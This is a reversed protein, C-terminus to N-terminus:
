KPLDASPVTASWAPIQSLRAWWARLHAFDAVPFRGRDMYTAAGGVVFDALTAEPGALFPRNALRDNLLNALPRFKEEGLAVTAPNPQGLGLMPKRVNETTLITTAESWASAEWFLWRAIDARTKPDRPYFATDGRRECLFQCIANSEWLLLGGGADLAPLKGMPNVALFAPQRQEGKALNVVERDIDEIGLHAIVANVKRVNPSPPFYYLKM